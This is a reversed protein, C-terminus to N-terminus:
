VSGIITVFHYVKDKVVAPRSQFSNQERGRRVMFTVM